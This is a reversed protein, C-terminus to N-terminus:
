SAINTDPTHTHDRFVLMSPPPHSPRPLVHNARQAVLSRSGDVVGRRALSRCPLHSPACRPSPGINGSRPPVADMQIGQSATPHVAEPNFSRAARRSSLWNKRATGIQRNKAAHHSAAGTGPRRFLRFVSFGFAGRMGAKVGVGL